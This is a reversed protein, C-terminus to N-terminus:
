ADGIESIGISSVNLTPAYVLDIATGSEREPPALPPWCAAHVFNPHGGNSRVAPLLHWRLVGDTGTVLGFLPSAGDRCAVPMQHSARYLTPQRPDSADTIATSDEVSPTESVSLFSLVVLGMANRDGDRQITRDIRPRNPMPIAFADWRVNENSVASTTIERFASSTRLDARVQFTSPSEFGAVSLPELTASGPPTPYWGQGDWVHALVQMAGASVLRSCMVVRIATANASMPWRTAICLQRMPPTAIWMGISRPDNGTVPVGSGDYELLADGPGTFSGFNVDASVTVNSVGPIYTMGGRKLRNTATHASNGRVRDQLATLAAASTGAVDALSESIGVYM